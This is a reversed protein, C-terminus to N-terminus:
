EFELAETLKDSINQVMRCVALESALFDSVLPDSRCEEYEKEFEEIKDFAVDESNQLRFNRMRFEDIEEKLGPRLKVLRLEERYRKCEKSNVVAQVLQELAIDIDRM